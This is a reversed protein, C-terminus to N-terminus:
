MVRFFELLLLLLLLLLLFFVNSVGYRFFYYFVVKVMVISIIRNINHYLGLNNLYPLFSALFESGKRVRSAM